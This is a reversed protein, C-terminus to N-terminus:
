PHRDAKENKLEVLMPTVKMKNLPQTKFVNMASNSFADKLFEELIENDEGFEKILEDYKRSWEKEDFPEPLVRRFCNCTVKGDEM